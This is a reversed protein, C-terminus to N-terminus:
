DNKHKNSTPMPLDIFEFARPNIKGFNEDSGRNSQTMIVRVRGDDRLDIEENEPSFDTVMRRPEFNSTLDIEEDLVDIKPERNIYRYNFENDAKMFGDNDEFFSGGDAFTRTLRGDVFDVQFGAEELFDKMAYTMDSSGVEDMDESDEAVEMASDVVQQNIEDLTIFGSRVAKELLQFPRIPYESDYLKIAEDIGVARVVRSKLQAYLRKQKEILEKYQPSNMYDSFSGGNAYQESLVKKIRNIERTPENIIKWEDIRTFDLPRSVKNGHLDEIFVETSYKSDGKINIVKAKAKNDKKQLYDGVKITKIEIEGGKAFYKAQEDETLENEILLNELYIKMSPKKAEEITIPKSIGEKVGFSNENWMKAIQKPTLNKVIAEKESFIKKLEEKSRIGGGDAMKEELLENWQNITFQGYRKRSESDSINFKQMAKYINEGYTKSPPLVDGGDAMKYAKDSKAFAVVEKQKPNNKNGVLATIFDSQSIMKRGIGTMLNSLESDTLNHEKAFADVGATRTNTAFAINEIYLERMSPRSKTRGGYAYAESMFQTGDSVEPTFGGGEFSDTFEYDNGKYVLRYGSFGNNKVWREKSNGGDDSVIIERGKASVLHYGSPKLTSNSQGGMLEEGLSGGDKYIGQSAGEGLYYNIYSQSADDIVQQNKEM